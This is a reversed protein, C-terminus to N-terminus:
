RSMARRIDRMEAASLVGPAAVLVIRTGRTVWTVPAFIRGDWSGRLSIGSGRREAAPPPEVPPAEFQSRGADTPASISILTRAANKEVGYKSEVFTAERGSVVGRFQFILEALSGADGGTIEAISVNPLGAIAPPVVVLFPMDARARDLDVSRTTLQTTRGAAFTFAQLVREAGAIVAPVNSSVAVLTLAVAVALYGAVSGRRLRFRVRPAGNSLGRVRAAVAAEDFDPVDIAEGYAAVAAAVADAPPKRNM